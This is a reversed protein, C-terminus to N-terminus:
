VHARGIQHGPHVDVLPGGVGGLQHERGERAAVLVGDGLAHGVALGGALVAPGAGVDGDGGVVDAAGVVGVDDADVALAALAADAKHQLLVVAVVQGGLRPLVQAVLDLGDGV